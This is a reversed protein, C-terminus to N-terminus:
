LQLVAFLARLEAEANVGLQSMFNKLVRKVKSADGSYTRDENRHTVVVAYSAKTLPRPVRIITFGIIPRLMELVKSERSDGFYIAFNDETIRKEILQWERAQVEFGAERLKKDVCSSTSCTRLFNGGPTMVIVIYKRSRPVLAPRPVKIVMAGTEACPLKESHVVDEAFDRAYVRVKEGGEV